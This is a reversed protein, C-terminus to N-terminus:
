FFEKTWVALHLLSTIQKQTLLDDSKQSRELLSQLAKESIHWTKRFSKDLHDRIFEKYAKGYFDAEKFTFPHKKRYSRKFGLATKKFAFKRLIKKEMRLSILDKEPLKLTFDAFDSNLYPVRIELSCAMSLKDTRLLNYNTLWNQIDFSMLEKLSSIDPYPSPSPRGGQFGSPILKSLDEYSFLHTAEIFRKLGFRSLVTLSSQLADKRFKGPYPVLASLLSEPLRGTLGGAFPIALRLKKLLYFTRHHGYGGLIEDAGEGSLATKVKRSTHEMLKYTPIIISDGLPEELARIIKPLLLFDTKEPYVTHLTPHFKRALNEAFRREERDYSNDFFFAPPKKSSSHILASITSSDVGGSILSGLSVESESTIEVSKKLKDAFMEFREKKNKFLGSTQPKSPLTRYIHTKVEKKQSVEMIEAPRVRFVGTFLTKEELVFRQQLYQPLVDRNISPKKLLLLPKIESSFVFRKPLIQYYLPKIGFPDRFLTWKKELTDFVAGAFMGQLTQFASVGYELYAYFLAESDCSTKFIWGKAQLTKKIQAHNYIEGNFVFCFRKDPSWLPQVAREGPASVALRNVGVSWDDQELFSSEDPGRHRMLELLSPLSVGGSGKGQFNLNGIVGCM